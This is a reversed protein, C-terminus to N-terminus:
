RNLWELGGVRGDAPLDLLATALHALHFTPPTDTAAIIALAEAVAQEDRSADDPACRRCARLGAARAEEGGAFFRVNARSPRRAACSPRCYIGTSLVGFVFYGDATRARELVAKWKADQTSYTM